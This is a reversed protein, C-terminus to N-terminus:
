KLQRGNTVVVKMGLQVGHERAVGAAAAVDHASTPPDLASFWAVMGNWVVIADDRHDDGERLPPGEARASPGDLDASSLTVSGGEAALEAAITNM